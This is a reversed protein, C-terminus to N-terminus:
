CCTIVFILVTIIVSLLAINDSTIYEGVKEWILNM